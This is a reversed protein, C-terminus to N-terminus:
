REFESFNNRDFINNEYMMNILRLAKNRDHDKSSTTYIRLVLKNINYESSYRCVEGTKGSLRFQLFRDIAKFSIDILPLKYEYLFQFLEEPHEFFTRSEIFCDFLMEVPKTLQESTSLFRFCCAVDDRVTESDDNFLDTLIKVGFEIHESYKLLKRAITTVGSRSGSNGNLAKQFIDSTLKTNHFIHTRVALEGGTKNLDADEADLLRTVFSIFKEYDTYLLNILLHETINTALVHDNVKVFLKQSLFEALEKDSYWLKDLLIVVNAAISDSEISVLKELHEIIISEYKDQNKEWLKYLLSIAAGRPTNLGCTLPDGGYYPSEGKWSDESDTEANLAVKLIYDIDNQKFDISELVELLHILEYQVDPDNFCMTFCAFQYKEKDSIDLKKISYLIMEIMLDPIDPTHYVMNMFREPYCQVVKEFPLVLSQYDHEKKNKITRFLELWEENSFEPKFEDDFMAEELIIEPTKNPPYKLDIEEKWKQITNKTSEQLKDSDLACLANLSNYHLGNYYRIDDDLFYNLFTVEISKFINNDCFKSCKSVMDTGKKRSFRYPEDNILTIAENAFYKPHEAFIHLLLYNTIYFDYKKLEEIYPRLIEPNEKGISAFANELSIIYLKAGNIDNCYDFNGRIEIEFSYTKWFSDHKLKGSKQKYCFKEALPIVFPFIKDIFFQPESQASQLVDVNDGKTENQLPSNGGNYNPVVIDLIRQFRQVIVEITWKPQIGYIIYISRFDKSIENDYQGLQLLRLFIDFLTRNDKLNFNKIVSNIREQWIKGEELYPLIIEAVKDPYNKVQYQLFALASDLRVPDSSDLNEQIFNQVEQLLFLTPSCLFHFNAHWEINSVCSNETRFNEYQKLIYPKIVNWETQQIDSWSVILSIILIKLHSFINQSELAKKVSQIYKPFDDDRLYTMYQRLQSRRFLHQGTEFEKELYQVFDIGKGVLQRSFCYDFFSEHRFGLRKGDKLLVGESCMINIYKSPISDLKTEAITLEQCESMTSCIIQMVENWYNGTKDLVEKKCKWYQDFLDKQTIFSNFTKASQICEFYLSLNQPLTLLQIQNTALSDTHHNKLLNKVEQESLKGIDFKFVSYGKKKDSNEFLQNFRSDNNFDFERCAIILHFRTTNRIQRIENIEQVLTHFTELFDSKRGSTTSMCDLQDVLLVVDKEQFAFTLEIAPSQKLGLQEGLKQTTTTYELRDVRFALTPVKKKNLLQLVEYLVGSKGSGAEGLTAINVSESANLITDAIQDAVDRHILQGSILRREHYDVYQETIKEITKKVTSRQWDTSYIGKSQLHELIDDIYLTKHIQDFYYEFLIARVIAPSHERFLLKLSCDILFIIQGQNSHTLRSNQLIAFTKQPIQKIFDCITDFNHKVEKTQDILLKFDDWSNSQKARELLERLDPADSVSAFVGIRNNCYQEQFFSFIGEKNLRRLTWSGESTQRKIQWAENKSAEFSLVFDTKSIGVPEICISKVENLLICVIANLGWYNEYQNGMKDAAGGSIPM